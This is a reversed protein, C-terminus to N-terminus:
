NAGIRACRITIRASRSMNCTFLTLDWDGASMGSIDAADITELDIVEYSFTNGDMDIFHIMDGYSLEDIYGFHQRYNHGGIIMNDQYVSGEYRCPAMKLLADSTEAIIPLELDLKPIQIYGIYDIGDINKRPMKMKPNLIYDPIEVGYDTLVYATPYYIVPEAGLTPAEPMQEHIAAIVAGSAAGDAEEVNMNHYTLGAAGFILAV